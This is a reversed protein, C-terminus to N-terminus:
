MQLCVCVSKTCLQKTSSSYSLTSTPASFIRFAAATLPVIFPFCQFDLVSGPIFNHYSVSCYVCSLPLLIIMHKPPPPPLTSSRRPAHGAETNHGGCQEEWSLWWLHCLHCWCGACVTLPFFYWIEGGVVILTCGFAERHSELVADPM